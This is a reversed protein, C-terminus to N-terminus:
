PKIFCNNTTPNTLPCFCSDQGVVKCGSTVTGRSCGSCRGGTQGSAPLILMATSLLMAGVSACLLMKKKM